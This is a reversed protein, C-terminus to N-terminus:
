SYSHSTRYSCSHTTPKDLLKCWLDVNVILKSLVQEDLQEIQQQAQENAETRFYFFKDSALHQVKELQDSIQIQHAWLLRQLIAQNAKPFNLDLLQERRYWAWPPQINVLALDSVQAYFLHLNVVIDEYEHRIFDFVHWNSIDVGVEELVERRCAQEPNEGDEVKGGPFEYKNGQHQDANRWGVLVKGRHFLMAIAVHVSPKSM